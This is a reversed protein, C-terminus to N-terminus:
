ERHSHGRTARSRAPLRHELVVDEKNWFHVGKCYPCGTVNNGMINTPSEFAAEDMTMSTPIFHKTEPCRIMLRPM